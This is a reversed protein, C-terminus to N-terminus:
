VHNFAQQEGNGFSWNEKTNEVLTIIIEQPSIGTTSEIHSVISKYLSRKQEINRGSAATIQIFIIANTHPIGLYEEPYKLQNNKLSEIIHFYDKSPINFEEILALHIAKSILDQIKSEYSESLSIKVLPM